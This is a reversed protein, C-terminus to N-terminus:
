ATILKKVEIGSGHFSFGLNRIIGQAKLEELWTIIGLSKMREFGATDALMHLLYYDIYDTRLKALQTSFIKIAGDLKSIMFPPLKTAIKVRERYGDSLAKGLISESKGGNYFYATDFYNIGKHISDRIMAISRDEDVSGNKTPFRMCGFGLISLEDGNKVNTRTLM